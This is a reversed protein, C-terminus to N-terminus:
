EFEPYDSSFATLEYTSSFLEIDDSQENKQESYISGIAVGTAILFLFSLTLSASRIPFFSNTQEIRSSVRSYFAPQMKGQDSNLSDLTKQIEEEVHKM